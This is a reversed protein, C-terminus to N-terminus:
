HKLGAADQKMLRYKQKKRTLTSLDIGLSEAAEKLTKHEMIARTILDREYEEVAQKLNLRGRAASEGGRVDGSSSVLKKPLHEPMIVDGPVMVVLYEVVNQLERVNGPWDYRVFANLVAESFSKQFGYRNNYVELFHYALPLIDGRRARLPPITIPIVHLRYFLDARFTGEEVQKELDRNTAAIVRANTSIPRLGGVRYFVKDQLVNLLKVQLSLSLEGVEDLFVTGDAALEFLGPKGEKRAGTFAGGEYGFLESELLHEPIAGCAIKVFPQDKRKSARHIFRALMDKGVGSEGLLLVTSDVQAVKAASKLVQQMAASRTVIGTERALSEWEGACLDSPQWCSSRSLEAQLSVLDRADRVNFVVFVVNRQEGFVPNATVLLVHECGPSEFISTARKKRTVVEQFLRRFNFFVRKPLRRALLGWACVVKGNGDFVVFGDYSAHLLSAIEGSVPEAQALSVPDERHLYVFGLERERVMSRGKGLNTFAPVKGKVCLVQLLAHLLM